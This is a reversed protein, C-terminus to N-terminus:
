TKTKKDILRKLTILDDNNSMAGYVVPNRFEDLTLYPM